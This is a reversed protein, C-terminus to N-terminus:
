PAYGGTTDVFTTLDTDAKLLWYNFMLAHIAFNHAKKRWAFQFELRRPVLNGSTGGLVLGIPKDADAATKGSGADCWAHTRSTADHQDSGDLEDGRAPLLAAAAMHTGKARIRGKGTVVAGFTVFNCCAPVLMPITVYDSWTETTTMLGVPAASTHTENNSTLFIRPTMPHSGTALHTAWQDIELIHASKAPAGNLISFAGDADYTHIPVHM